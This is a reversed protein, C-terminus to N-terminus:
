ADHAEKLLGPNEFENGLVEWGIDPMFVKGRQLAGGEYVSLVFAGDEFDVVGVDEDENCVIDGEWIQKGSHDHLGTFQLLQIEDMNAVFGDEAEGDWLYATGDSWMLETVTYVRGEYHARFQIERM